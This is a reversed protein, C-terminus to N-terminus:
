RQEEPLILTLRRTQLLLAVALLLPLFFEVGVLFILSSSDYILAVYLTTLLLVLYGIRRMM